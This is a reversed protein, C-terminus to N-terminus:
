IGTGGPFFCVPGFNRGTADVFLISKGHPTMVDAQVIDQPIDKWDSAGEEQYQWRDGKKSFKANVTDSHDCCVLYWPAQLRARTEATTQQREYWAREAPPINAYEEKWRASAPPLMLCSCALVISASAFKQM